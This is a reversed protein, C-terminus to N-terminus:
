RNNPAAWDPPKGEPFLRAETPDVREAEKWNGGYPLEEAVYLDRWKEHSASVHGVEAVEDHTLNRVFRAPNGGWVEGEPILKAPPVVTGPMLIAKFAVVSGEMVISREGVIAMGGIRCSRLLSGAGITAGLGIVTTAPLGTASNKAAHIVCNEQVTALPYISINNLDGRVVSGHMIIAGGHIDVDGAIVASPAIYADLM